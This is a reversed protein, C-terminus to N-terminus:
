ANDLKVDCATITRVLKMSRANLTSMVGIVVARLTLPMCRNALDEWVLRTPTANRTALADGPTPFVFEEPVLRLQAVTMILLAANSRSHPQVGKSLAFVPCALKKLSVCKIESAVNALHPM